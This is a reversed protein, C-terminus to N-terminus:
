NAAAPAITIWDLECEFDLTDPGALPQALPTLDCQRVSLHASPEAALHNLFDLLRGEHRLRSHIKMTSATLEYGPTALAVALSRRPRLEYDVQPLGAEERASRVREIWRLRAEDGVVGRARLDQFRRITARLQAENSQAEVYRRHAERYATQAEQQIRTADARHRDLQWVLVGFALVAIAVTALPWRLRRLDTAAIM